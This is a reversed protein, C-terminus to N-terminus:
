IGSHWTPQEFAVHHNGICDGLVMVSESGKRIEFSMHGPTHGVTARAAVGPLIEEGDDFFALQDAFMDLRRKAGAAFAIRAQGISDATNPDTWYAFEARGMLHTANAFVPEDFADLLGWLHDPHGHTFVVHTVEDPALGLQDLTLHLKGASAMFDPGAGVDFLVRRDGDRLLTVNCDPKLQQPSLGYRALIAAAQDAPADGLIFSGPVVLNGDSLTEVTAGGLEVTTGAWARGLPSLGAAATVAAAAGGALFNRRTVTM